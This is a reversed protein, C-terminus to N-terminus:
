GSLGQSNGARWAFRSPRLCVESPCNRASSAVQSSRTSSASSCPMGAFTVEWWNRCVAAVLSILASTGWCM